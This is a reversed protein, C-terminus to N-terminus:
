IVCYLEWWCSQAVSWIVIPLHLYRPVNQTHCTFMFLVVLFLEWESSLSFLRIAFGYLRCQSHFHLAVINVKCVFPPWKKWLSRLHTQLYNTQQKKFHWPTFLSGTLICVTKSPMFIPLTNAIIRPVVQSSVPAFLMNHRVKLSM